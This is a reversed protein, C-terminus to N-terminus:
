ICHCGLWTKPSVRMADRKEDQNSRGEFVGLNDLDAFPLHSAVSITVTVVFFPFSHLFSPQYRLIQAYIRFILGL